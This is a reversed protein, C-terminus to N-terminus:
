PLWSWMKLEGVEEVMIADASFPRNSTLQYDSAGIESRHSGMSYQFERKRSSNTNSRTMIKLSSTKLGSGQYPTCVRAKTPTSVRMIRRLDGM